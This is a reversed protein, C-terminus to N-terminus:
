PLVDNLPGAPCGYDHLFMAKLKLALDRRGTALRTKIAGLSAACLHEHVIACCPNIAPGYPGPVVACGKADIGNRYLDLLEERLHPAETVVMGEMLAVAAEDGRGRVLLAHSIQRYADPNLPDQARAKNATDLARETDGLGLYAASLLRYADGADSDIESGPPGGQGTKDAQSKHQAKFISICRLLIPIARQYARVSEPPRVVEGHPGQRLLRSAKELYYGGAFRYSKANNLPDPLPDLLALSREAEDIVRDINARTPDSDYLGGALLSHARFSRPCTRVSAAGLTVDDQWDLNRVWTRTAFGAAFLCLLVPVLGPVRVERGGASLALVLCAILGAAPLYLFREAM